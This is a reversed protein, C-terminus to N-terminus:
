APRTLRGAAIAERLLDALPLRGGAGTPGSPARIAPGQLEQFGAAVAAVVGTASTLDTAFSAFGAAAARAAFGRAILVADADFAPRWRLGLAHVGLGAFRGLAADELDVEVRTARRRVALAPLRAALRARTVDPGVGRVLWLLSAETEPDVAALRELFARGERPHELTAFRVPCLVPRQGDQVSADAVLALAADLTRGDATAAEIVGEDVGHSAEVLAATIAAKGTSWVPNTAAGPPPVVSAGFAPPAFISGFISSGFISSGASQPAPEPRASEWSIRLAAGM